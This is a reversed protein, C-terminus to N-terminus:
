IRAGGVRSVDGFPQKVEYGGFGTLSRVSSWPHVRVESDRQFLRFPKTSSLVYKFLRGKLMRTSLNSFIVYDKNYAGQSSPIVQNFAVGDVIITLTIDATSQHAIYGDKLFQYGAIDHSTTQTEWYTTSEPAPEWVWKISFLRWFNDTLPVIRFLHGTFAPVLVFPQEGQGTFTVVYDEIAREDVQLRITKPVGGTDAELIFGQLFKDGDYGANDWDTARLYTDEPRDLWSPEWFFLEASQANSSFQIDYGINQALTDLPMDYAVTLDRELTVYTKAPALSTNYNNGWAQISVTVGKTYLSFVADGQIKNTRPDEGDWAPTMMRSSINIGDDSNGTCSYLFGNTGAMLLNYVAQNSANFGTETYHCAPSVALVDPYWGQLKTDYFMRQNFGQSDTYTFVLYSNFYELRMPLRTNIARITAGNPFLIDMGQNDGQPFLTGLDNSICVPPGGSTEYIGDKAIFWIKPGVCFGWRYILGKGNAIPIYTFPSPGNSQIIQYFGCESFAYNKSDFVCGNMMMESPSGVSIRNTDSSSDPDTAKTFYVSGADFANGAGFLTEQFPGWIAPLPHAALIPEPISISVNTGFGLSEAVHFLTTSAPLAYVETTIGNIIVKTGISMNLDVSGSTLSIATGSINGVGLLSPGSVTFPQYTDTELPASAKIAASFQDDLLNPTANDSTGLYNWTINAGGLREWDIKDVQPDSSSVGQLIVGQRLATIGSRLAPGPLSMSGIKSSRYRYRYQFPTLGNGSDPGYGGGAWMGAMQVFINNTVTFNLIIAKVVTLDVTQDAGIRLFDAIKWRFETWQSAGTFMQSSASGLVPLPPVADQTGAVDVPLSAQNSGLATPPALPTALQVGTQTQLDLQISTTREADSTQQNSVYQQFNSARLTVIYANRTGDTAAHLNTTGADVDLIVQCQQVFEPHDIWTSLHIYDDPSLPRNGAIGFHYVSGLGANSYISGSGGSSGPNIFYSQTSCQLAEGPVHINNLYIWFNGTPPLTITEGFVHTTLTSCRFSSIGNPGSTVSIVRIWESGLQVMSNRALGAISSSPAVTCLGTAGFDYIVNAVSLSGAAFARHVEEVTAFENTGGLDLRMGSVIDGTNGGVPVIAAWGPNGAVYLITGLTVGNLRQVGARNLVPTTSSGSNGWTGAVNFPSTADFLNPTVYGPPILEASPIQNPPQIGMPYVTGSANVKLMKNQDAIYAFDNVAQIPLYPVYSLPNGSFGSAVPTFSNQGVYLSTGAGLFRLFSGTVYDNMRYISNINADALDTSNIKTLGPRGELRGEQFARVNSLFPYKGAPLLDVPHNFDVGLSIFRQNKRKYAQSPM